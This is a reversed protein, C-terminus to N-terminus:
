TLGNRRLERQLDDLRGAASEPVVCVYVLDGERWAVTPFTGNGTAVYQVNGPDFSKDQPPDALLAAPVAMLAGRVLSNRKVRFRFEFLAVQHRKGAPFFGRAQTAVDVDSSARWGFGPREAAFDGAFAPLDALDLTASGRLEDLTLKAPEFYGFRWLGIVVCLCAAACAVAGQLWVRRSSGRQKSEHVIVPQAVCGTEEFELQSAGFDDESSPISTALLREKLGAPIPVDQMTRAIKVDLADRGAITSRCRPCADVHAVAASVDPETVDRSEPRVIELLELASRCDM